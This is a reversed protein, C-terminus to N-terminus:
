ASGWLAPAPAVAPPAPVDLALTLCRCGGGAKLFEGVPAVAVEYGAAELARGLRPPCAPMVVVGGVVVSNACFAAAESGELWIPEPVLSRVVRCGYDDLGQGAVMARRDDLPCFVLDLHYFREDVLEVSRVPVGLLRSLGAHAQISSRQRYGALVVGRPGSPLADGAGEFPEKGPVEEVVYGQSRAWAVDVATEAQREPHRFRSAVFRGGQVFGANATFVLDPLGEVPGLREISAGAQQLLGVLGAWQGMAGEPDPRVEVHMYPNIEYAVTFFRPECMLLRRGWGPGKADIAM